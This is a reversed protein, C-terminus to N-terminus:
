LLPDGQAISLSRDPILLDLDVKQEIGLGKCTPCAGLPANFSFLKPELKPVTFGCIKCAYNSSLLIEEDGALVSVM